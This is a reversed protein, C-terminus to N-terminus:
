KKKPLANKSKKSQKMEEDDKNLKIITNAANDFQAIIERFGFRNNMMNKKMALFIFDYFTM